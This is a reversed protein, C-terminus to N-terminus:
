IEKIEYAKCKEGMFKINKNVNFAKFLNTKKSMKQM